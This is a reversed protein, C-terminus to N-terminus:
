DAEIGIKETVTNMMIQKKEDSFVDEEQAEERLRDHLITRVKLDSDLGVLLM